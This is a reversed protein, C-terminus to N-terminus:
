FKIKYFEIAKTATKSLNLELDSVPNKTAWRDKASLRCLTLSMCVKASIQFFFKVVGFDPKGATVASPHARLKFKVKVMKKLETCGVMM